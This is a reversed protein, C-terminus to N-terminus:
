EITIFEVTVDHLTNYKEITAINEIKHIKHNNFSINCLLEKITEHMIEKDGANIHSDIEQQLQMNRTRMEQTLFRNIKLMMDKKGDPGAQHFIHISDNKNAIKLINMIYERHENILHNM